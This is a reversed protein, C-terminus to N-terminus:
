NSPVHRNTDLDKVVLFERLRLFFTNTRSFKFIRARRFNEPIRSCDGFALWGRGGQVGAFGMCSFNSGMPQFSIRAQYWYWCFEFCDEAVFWIIQLTSGDRPLDSAQSPNGASCGSDLSDGGWRRESLKRGSGLRVALAQLIHRLQIKELTKEWPYKCINM